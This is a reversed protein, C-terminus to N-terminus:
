KKATCTETVQLLFPKIYHKMQLFCPESIETDGQVCTALQGSWGINALCQGRYRSVALICRIEGQSVVWTLLVRHRIILGHLNHTSVAAMM